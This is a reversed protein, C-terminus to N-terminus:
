SRRYRSRTKRRVVHWKNYNSTSNVGKSDINPIEVYLDIGRNDQIPPKDEETKNDEDSSLSEILDNRLVLKDGKLVISDHQILHQFNIIANTQDGSFNGKKKLFRIRNPSLAEHNSLNSIAELLPM